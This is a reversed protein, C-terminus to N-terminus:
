TDSTPCNEKASSTFAAFFAKQLSNGDSESSLEVIVSRVPITTIFAFCIIVIHRRTWRRTMIWLLINQRNDMIEDSEVQKRQKIDTIRYM